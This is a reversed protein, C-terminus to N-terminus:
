AGADTVAGRYDIAAVGYDHRVRMQVGDVEWGDKTEVVPSMQGELFAVEFVPAVGPDAFLYRRTGSLRATGVITSFMGVAVNPRNIAKNATADPDYQSQNIVNAQGKLGRAVLLVAPQLNLIENGSVDTQAAMIASNADLAAASIAAGAGLNSHGADFLPLADSMTPGLGANLALQTYVDVEISLAAARGLGSMLRAVAGLDDNVIVQRTVGVINGKTTATISAKEGDPVAKTKFEGHENLADLAGFSGTRYRNHARFDVVTGQACFARWTDPQTAYAAQLVKHMATELLVAFDSTTQMAQSRVTLAEAILRMRDLGRVQRGAREVTYRCLDLLTMGRFEGPDLAPGELKEAKAVIAIQGTRELLWNVARRKEQDRVDEGVAIHTQTEPGQQDRKALAEFVKARAQDLPVNDKVLQEGLTTPLKAIRVADTIGAIRAREETAGAERAQRTAEDDGAPEPAPPDLARLQEDIEDIEAMKADFLARNEDDAFTGDQRRLAEAERLLKKRKAEIKKKM